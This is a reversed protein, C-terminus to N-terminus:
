SEDGAVLYVLSPIRGGDVEGLARRVCATVLNRWGPRLHRMMGRALNLNAAVRCIQLHTENLGTTSVAEYGTVFERALRGANEADLESDPRDGLAEIQTAFNAVDVVASGRCARDLDLLTLNGASVRFQRPHLDNHLIVDPILPASQTALGLTKERLEVWEGSLEPVAAALDVIADEISGRIAGLGITSDISATLQHFAHTTRAAKAILDSASEGSLLSALDHGQIWQVAMIGREIDRGVVSPVRVAGTSESARAIEGHRTAIARCQGATTCRVAISRKGSSGNAETGRCRLRLVWRKEPVYRIMVRRLSADDLRFDDGKSELWGRWAELAQQRGQFKRVSRLRRDNPFAYAEVRLGRITLCEGRASMPMRAPTHLYIITAEPWFRNSPTDSDSLLAFAARLYRGPHYFAEVLQCERWREREREDIRQLGARCANLVEPPDFAGALDGLRADPPIDTKMTLM